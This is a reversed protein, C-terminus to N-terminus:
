GRRGELTDPREGAGLLTRLLLAGWSATALLFAGSAVGLWVSYQQPRVNLLIRAVLAVAFLAAMTHILPQRKSAAGREGSHSLVVHTSIAYAMLAFGGLFVVHLAAARYAPFLAVAAYGLPISWASAWVLRRHFGPQTPRRWLRSPILVAAAVIAARGAYAVSLWGAAEAVFSAIFLVWTLSQFLRARPRSFMEHPAEGRTVFPFLLGGVGVALGTFLGQLVLGKGLDHLWMWDTGGSAAGTLLAGVISSALSLPVWVFTPPLRRAAASRFARRVAFQALVLITALWSLQAAVHQERWAFVTLALPGIAALMLEISTPREAGTRRPMFTFLFGVAFCTMVGQIQVMSHFISRYETSAGVAL